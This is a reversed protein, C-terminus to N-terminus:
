SPAAAFVYQEFQRVKEAWTEQGLRKRAERQSPPMGEALRRRVAASFEEPTGVLDLADAWARNAPLDRVVVPKDTALYEMLKLPQSERLMPTDRYPMVLVAAEHALGPLQVYPMQPLRLVRPIAKLEPAPDTEPGVLVITGQKLDESLRRLLGCDIRAGIEGWCVVWPRQKGELSARWSMVAPQGHDGAQWLDLDVGHTLLHSGKGWRALREQLLPSVALLVDARRVLREEMAEIAREDHGPWKSFDDVCYYVWRSVPLRDMVDAVIPVTTVAVVPAASRQVAPLLQRSLLFANLPRGLREGFWPWMWPSLVRPNDAMSGCRAAPNMWTALKRWGRRLTLWTFTPRRMGITNVWLVRYRDLMRGVLHQSSSPHRGWDDSFVLLVPESRDADSM